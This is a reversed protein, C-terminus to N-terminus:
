VPVRETLSITAYASNMCIMAQDLEDDSLQELEANIKKLNEERNM